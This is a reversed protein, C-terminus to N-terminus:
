RLDEDYAIRGEKIAKQIDKKNPRYPLGLALRNCIRDIFLYLHRLTTNSYDWDRGLTLTLNETDWVACVSDYSQFIKKNGSTIVFQNAHEFQYVFYKRAILQKM